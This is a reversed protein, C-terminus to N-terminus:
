FEVCCMLISGSCPFWESAPAIYLTCPELPLASVFGVGRACVPCGFHYASCSELSPVLQQRPVGLGPRSARALPEDWMM